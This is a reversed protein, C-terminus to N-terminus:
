KSNSPWSLSGHIELILFHKCQIRRGLNLTVYYKDYTGSVVASACYSHDTTQAYETGLMYVHEIVYQKMYRHWLGDVKVDLTSIHRTIIYGKQGYERSLFLFLIRFRFLLLKVRM